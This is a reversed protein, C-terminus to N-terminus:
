TKVYWVTVDKFVVQLESEHVHNAIKKLEKRLLNSLVHKKHMLASRKSYKNLTDPTPLFPPSRISSSSLILWLVRQRHVAWPCVCSHPSPWRSPSLPWSLHGLPTPFLSMQLPTLLLFLTLVLSYGSRDMKM